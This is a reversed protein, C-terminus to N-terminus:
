TLKTFLERFCPSVHDAAKLCNCHLYKSCNDAHTETEFLPINLSLKAISTNFCAKTIFIFNIFHKKMIYLMLNNFLPKDNMKRSPRQCVDRPVSHYCQYVM